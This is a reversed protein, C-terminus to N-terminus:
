TPTGTNSPGTQVGGHMHTHLSTGAATVDNTVTLPGLMTCSGGGAGVGQQLAGNLVTTGNVTFTPTTVTATASAIIEVTQADLKVNPAELIIGTPSHLKIGATSFQMYQTPAGNLMGGVYMGDSFSYRRGSGPNAKARVSKVKSIDHSAFVCLGIDGPTPDMIIANVGGQLRLYPVNYITVHEVPNGASDVQNVLPTVSVFGVPTVGGSNTCSDVRVLTGTQMKSLAQQVVFAINNYDGWTASPRLPGAPIGNNQSPSAM